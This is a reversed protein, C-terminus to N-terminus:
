PQWKKLECFGFGSVPLVRWLNETRSGTNNGIVLRGGTFSSSLLAGSGGSASSLIGVNRWIPIANYPTEATAPYATSLTKIEWKQNNSSGDQVCKLQTALNTGAKLCFGTTRFFITRDPLIDVASILRQSKQDPCDVMILDMNKGWDMNKGFGPYICSNIGSKESVLYVNLAQFAPTNIEWNQGGERNDCAAVTVNGWAVRALCRNRYPNFIKYYGNSQKAVEWRQNYSDSDLKCPFTIVVNRSNADLCKGNVASHIFYANSGNLLKKLFWLKELPPALAPGSKTMVPDGNKLFEGTAAFGRTNLTVYADPSSLVSFTENKALSSHCKYSLIEAGSDTSNGSINFCRSRDSSTVRGNDLFFFKQRDDPTAQCDGIRLADGETGWVVCREPYVQSRIQGSEELIWKQNPKSYDCSWSVLRGNFESNGLDVCLREDQASSLQKSYIMVASNTRAPRLELVNQANAAPSLLLGSIIFSAFRSGFINFPPKM